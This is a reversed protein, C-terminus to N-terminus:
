IERALIVPFSFRLANRDRRAKRGSLAMERKSPMFTRSLMRSPIEQTFQSIRSGEKRLNDDVREHVGDWRDHVNHQHTQHEPQYKANHANLEKAPHKRLTDM